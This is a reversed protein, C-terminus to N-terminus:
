KELEVVFPYKLTIKVDIQYDFTEEISEDLIALFNQFPRGSYRDIAEKITESSVQGDKYTVIYQGFDVGLKQDFIQYSKVLYAYKTEGGFKSDIEKPILMRNGLYDIYQSARISQSDDTHQHIQAYVIIEDDEGLEGSRLLEELLWWSRFRVSWLSYGAEVIEKPKRELISEVSEGKHPSVRSYIVYKPKM